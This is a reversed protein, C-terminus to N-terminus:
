PHGSEEQYHHKTRRTRQSNCRTSLDVPKRQGRCGMYPLTRLINTPNSLTSKLHLVGFMNNGMYLLVLDSKGVLNDTSIDILDISTWAAHKTLVSAHKLYNKCLAFLAIEDGPTTNKTMSILWDDISIKKLLLPVCVASALTNKNGLVMNVMNERVDEPTDLSFQAFIEFM